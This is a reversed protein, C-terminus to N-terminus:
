KEEASDSKHESRHFEEWRSWAYTWEMWMRLLAWLLRMKDLSQADLKQQRAVSQQAAEDLGWRRALTKCLEDATMDTKADEELYGAGHAAVFMEFLQGRAPELELPQSSESSSRLIKEIERLIFEDFALAAGTALNDETTM